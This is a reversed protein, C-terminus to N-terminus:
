THHHFIIESENKHMLTHFPYWMSLLIAEALQDVYIKKTGNWTPIKEASFVSKWFVELVEPLGHTESVLCFWRVRLPPDLLVLPSAKVISGHNSPMPGPSSFIPLDLTIQKKSQSDGLPAM